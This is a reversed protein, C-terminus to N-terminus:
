LKRTLIFDVEPVDSNLIGLKRVALADDHATLYQHFYIKIDKQLEFYFM